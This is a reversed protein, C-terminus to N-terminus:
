KRELLELRNFIDNIKVSTALETQLTNIKNNINILEQKIEYIVDQISINTQSDKFLINQAQHYYTKSLEGSTNIQDAIHAKVGSSQLIEEMKLANLDSNVDQILNVIQNDTNYESPFDVIVSNSWNSKLPCIPYGAESIARVMFEVKEGSTIPIDVQNINNENGNEVNNEAWEWIGTSTNLVKEAIPTTITNWNTFIANVDGYPYSDLAPIAEDNRLYRYKIDFGIIRQESTPIENGNEDLIFQSKPIDIFGRVRYKPSSTSINNEKVYTKLRDCLSKYETTQQSLKAEELTLNNVYTQKINTDEEELILTNLNAITERISNISSTIAAIQTSLEKIENSNLTNNLQTNIQSVKFNNINLTPTNPTIGNYTSIRKEKAYSIWEAGFDAVYNQYYNKLSNNNEDILTNSIFSVCNSWENSLLNYKENVGKFYICNIEDIGIPVEIEKSAFPEFYYSFSDGVKPIDLGISNRLLVKNNNNDIEEIVFLSNKYRLTDYITLTRNNLTNDKDNTSYQITELNYWKKGDILEIGVIPFEGIYKESKLPFYLTDLDEYYSINNANLLDILENYSLNKNEIYNSYFSINFDTHPIIIRNVLVRDSENDVRSLLDISVVIKPFMLSEFFWNANTKFKTPPVVDKIKTPTSPLTEVKIQRNTGDVLTVTGSGSTFANVTNEVLELKNLINKYSPLTLNGDILDVNVYDSDSVIMESLGNLVSITTNANKAFTNMNDAFSNINTKKNM